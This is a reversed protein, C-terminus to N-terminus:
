APQNLPQFRSSEKTEPHLDQGFSLMQKVINPGQSGSTWTGRNPVVLTGTAGDAMPGISKRTFSIAQLLPGKFTSNNGKDEEQPNNAVAIFVPTSIQSPSGSKQM